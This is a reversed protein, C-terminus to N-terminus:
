GASVNAPREKFLSIYKSSLCSQTRTPINKPKLAGVFLEVTM